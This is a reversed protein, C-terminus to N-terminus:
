RTDLLRNLDDRGADPTSVVCGKRWEDVRAAAAIGEHIDILTQVQQDETSPHEEDAIAPPHQFDFHRGDAIIITHWTPMDTMHAPYVAKFSELPAAKVQELLKQLAARDATGETQSCTVTKGRVDPDTIAYTVHGGDDLRVRYSWCDGFCPGSSLEFAYHTAAAPHPPDTPTVPTAVVPSSFRADQMAVAGAFIAIGLAAVGVVWLVVRMADKPPPPTAQPARYPDVRQTHM